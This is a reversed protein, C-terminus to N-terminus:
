LGTQVAGNRRRRFSGALRQAQAHEFAVREAQQTMAQHQNTKHVQARIQRFSIPKFSARAQQDHLLLVRARDNSNQRIGGAIGTGDGISLRSAVLGRSTRCCNERATCVPAAFDVHKNHTSLRATLAGLRAEVSTRVGVVTTSTRARYHILSAQQRLKKLCCVARISEANLIM